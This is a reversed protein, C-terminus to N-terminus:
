IAVAESLLVLYRRLNAAIDKREFIERSPVWASVRYPPPPPLSHWVLKFLLAHLVRFLLLSLSSWPLWPMSVFASSQVSPSDDALKVLIMDFEETVAACEPRLLHLPWFCLRPRPRLGSQEPASLESESLAITCNLDLNTVGSLSLYPWKKMLIEKLFVSNKNSQSSVIFLRVRCVKFLSLPPCFHRNNIFFKYSRLLFRLMFLMVYMCEIFHQYYMNKLAAAAAKTRKLVATIGKRTHFSM